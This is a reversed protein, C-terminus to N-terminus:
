PVGMQFASWILLPEGRRAVFPAAAFPLWVVFEAGGQPWNFPAIRGLLAQISQELRTIEEDVVMLDRGRLGGGDGREAAAPVLIKKAMLPIRLEHAVGAALQGGAALRLIRTSM